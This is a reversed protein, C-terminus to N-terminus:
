SQQAWGVAPVQWSVSDARHVGDSGEATYIDRYYVHEVQRTAGPVIEQAKTKENTRTVQETSTEVTRTYERRKTVRAPQKGKWTVLVATNNGYNVSIYPEPKPQVQIRVLQSSMVGDKKRKLSYRVAYERVEEYAAERNAQNGERGPEGWDTIVYDGIGAGARKNGDRDEPVGGTVLDTGYVVGGARNAGWIVAECGSVPKLFDNGRFGHADDKTFNGSCGRNGYGYPLRIIKRGREDARVSAGSLAGDQKEIRIDPRVSAAAQFIGGSRETEEAAETKKQVAMKSVIGDNSLLAPRGGAGRLPYILATLLVLTVLFTALLMGYEEIFSKM